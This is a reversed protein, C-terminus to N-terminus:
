PEAGKRHGAFATQPTPWAVVRRLSTDMWQSASWQWCAEMTWRTGRLHRVTNLGALMEVDLKGRRGDHLPLGNAHLHQARLTKGRRIHPLATAAALWELGGGPVLAAWAAANRHRSQWPRLAKRKKQHPSFAPTGRIERSPWSKSLRGSAGRPTQLQERHPATGRNAAFRESWSKLHANHSQARPLGSAEMTCIRRISGAGRAAAATRPRTPMCKCLPPMRAHITSHELMHQTFM